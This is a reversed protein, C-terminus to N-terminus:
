DRQKNKEEEWGAQKRIWCLCHLRARRAADSLCCQFLHVFDAKILCFGSVRGVRAGGGGNTSAKVGQAGRVGSAGSVLVTAVVFCGLPFVVEFDVNMDCEIISVAAAPKTEM